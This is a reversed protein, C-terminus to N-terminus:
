IGSEAEFITWIGSGGRVRSEANRELNEPWEPNRRSFLASEAMGGVPFGGQPPFNTPTDFFLHDSFKRERSLSSGIMSQKM